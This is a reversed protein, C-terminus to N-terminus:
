QLKYTNTPQTINSITITPIRKQATFIFTFLEQIMQQREISNVIVAEGLCECCCTLIQTVHDTSPV